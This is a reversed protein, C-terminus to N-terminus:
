LFLEELKELSLRGKEDVDLIQLSCGREKALYVPRFVIIHDMASAAMRVGSATLGQIAINLADTAYSTFM